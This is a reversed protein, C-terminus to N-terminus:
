HADPFGPGAGWWRAVTGRRRQGHNGGQIGADRDFPVEKGDPYRLEFTRYVHMRKGIVMLAPRETTSDRGELISYVEPPPAAQAEPFSM